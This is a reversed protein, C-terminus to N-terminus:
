DRVLGLIEHLAVHTNALAASSPLLAALGLRGSGRVDAAAPIAAIGVNAFNRLARRLHSASTVVVVTEIGHARLISASFRANERTNTAEGEVAVRDAPVGASTLLDKMCYPLPEPAGTVVVLGFRGTQWLRLATLVRKTTTGDMRERLPVDPERTALGASLVVLATKDRDRGALAAEIDPGRIEVVHTLWASMAPTGLLWAGAWVIWAAIRARRGWPRAPTSGRFALHLLIALAVVTLLFPDLFRSIPLHAVELSLV